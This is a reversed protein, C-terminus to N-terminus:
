GGKRAKAAPNWRRNGADSILCASQRFSLVENLEKDIVEQM